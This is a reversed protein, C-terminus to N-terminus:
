QNIMSSAPSGPMADPHPAATDAAAMSPTIFPGATRGPEPGAYFGGAPPSHVSCM